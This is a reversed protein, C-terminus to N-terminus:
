PIPITDMVPATVWAAARGSFSQEGFKMKWTGEYRRSKGPEMDEPTLEYIIEEGHIKAKCGDCALYKKRFTLGDPTLSGVVKSRGYIDILDGTFNHADDVMLTGGFEKGLVGTGIERLLLVECTPSEEEFVGVIGCLGM